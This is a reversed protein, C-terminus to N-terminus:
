LRTQYRGASSLVSSSSRSVSADPLTCSREMGGGSIRGSTMPAIRVAPADDLPRPMEAGVQLRLKAADLFAIKGRAVARDLRHHRLGGHHIKQIALCRREPLRSAAIRFGHVRHWIM